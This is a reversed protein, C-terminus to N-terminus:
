CPSAVKTQYPFVESLLRQNKVIDVTFLEMSENLWAMPSRSMDNTVKMGPMFRSVFLPIRNNIQTIIKDFGAKPNGWNDNLHVQRGRLVAVFARDVPTFM